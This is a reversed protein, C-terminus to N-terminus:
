KTNSCANMIKGKGSDWKTKKRNDVDGRIHIISGATVQVFSNDELLGVHLTRENTYFGSNTVETVKVEGITLVLTQQPFSVIMYKDFADSVKGKLTMVNLPRGPMQSVAMEIVTLGHRLM